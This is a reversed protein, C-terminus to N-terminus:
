IYRKIRRQDEGVDCIIQRSNQLEIPILDRRWRILIYEEPISEVGVNLLVKFVHRCLYGHRGIHNCSCVITSEKLKRVVKYEAIKVDRKDLNETLYTEAEENSNISKISCTWAARHIETQGMCSRSPLVGRYSGDM